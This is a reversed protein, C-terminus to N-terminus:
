DEELEPLSIHPGQEPEEDYFGVHGPNCLPCCDAHVRGPGHPDDHSRDDDEYEERSMSYECVGCPFRDM